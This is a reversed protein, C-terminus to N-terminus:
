GYIMIAAAVELISSGIRFKRIPRTTTCSSCSYGGEQEALCILNGSVGLAARASPSGPDGVYAAVISDGSPMAVLDTGVLHGAPDLPTGEPYSTLPQRGTTYVRMWSLVGNEDQGNDGSAVCPLVLIVALVLIM